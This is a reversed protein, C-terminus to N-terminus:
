IRRDVGGEALVFEEIGESFDVARETNAIAVTQTARAFPQKKLQRSPQQASHDEPDRYEKEIAMIEGGVLGLDCEEFDAQDPNGHYNGGNDIPFMGAEANGREALYTPHRL